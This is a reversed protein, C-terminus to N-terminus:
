PWFFEGRCHPCNTNPANNFWTSLCHRHFKKKCVECMINPLEDTRYDLIYLCIMCESVGELKQRMNKKWQVLSRFLSMGGADCGQKMLSLSWQRCEVDNALSKATSKYDVHFPEIPYNPPFKINLEIKCAKSSLAADKICKGDGYQDTKGIDIIAIISRGQKSPLVKLLVDDSNNAERQMLSSSMDSLGSILIFPISDRHPGILGSDVTNSLLRCDKAPSRNIVLDGEILDNIANMQTSIIAPTFHTFLLSFFARKQRGGDMLAAFERMLKPANVFGDYLLCAALQELSHLNIETELTLVVFDCSFERTKLEDLIRDINTCDELVGVLARILKSAFDNSHLNQSISEIVLKNPSCKAYVIIIVHVLLLFGASNNLFDQDSTSKLLLDLAGIFDNPIVSRATNGEGTVEFKNNQLMAASVMARALLVSISLSNLNLTYYQLLTKMIELHNNYEGIPGSTNIDFLLGLFKDSEIRRFYECIFLIASNTDQGSKCMGRFVNLIIRECKLLVNLQEQNSIARDRVITLLEISQIFVDTNNAFSGLAIQTLFLAADISRTSTITKKGLSFIHNFLLITEKLLDIDSELTSKFELRFSEYLTCYDIVEQLLREHIRRIRHYSNLIRVIRLTDPNIALQWDSLEEKPSVIGEGFRSLNMIQDFITSKPPDPDQPFKPYVSSVLKHWLYDTCNDKEKLCQEGAKSVIKSLIFANKDQLVDEIKNRFSVCSHKFLAPNESFYFDIDEPTVKELFAEGFKSLLDVLFGDPINQICKNQYKRDIRLLRIVDFIEITDITEMLKLIAKPILEVINHDYVLSKLDESSLQRCLDDLLLPDFEKVFSRFLVLIDCPSTKTQAKICDNIILSIFECPQPLDKLVVGLIEEAVEHSLYILKELMKLVKNFRKTQDSFQPLIMTIKALSSPDCSELVDFILNTKGEFYDNVMQNLDIIKALNIAPFRNAKILILVDEVISPHSKQMSHMFEEIKEQPQKSFLIIRTHVKVLQDSSNEIECTM